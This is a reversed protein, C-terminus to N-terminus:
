GDKHNITCINQKTFIRVDSYRLGTYCSFLFANLVENPESLSERYKELIELEKETLADRHVQETRITYNLFPYETIIGKKRAVNVYRKLSKMHRAITNTSLRCEERMYIEFKLLFDSSM